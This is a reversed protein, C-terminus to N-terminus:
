LLNNEIIDTKKNLYARSLADAFYMETCKYNYEISYDFKQLFLIPRQLRARKRM